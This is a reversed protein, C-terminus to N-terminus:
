KKINKQPPFQTLIQTVFEKIREEKKDRDLVLVGAGMGQWVLDKKSSDILDIYLTGETSTSVSTYNGGWYPYAWGYYGGWGWGYYGWGNYFQNVDVQQRSQTFINVLLDPNESKTFGKKAFEEDIARLIRKKDLDSIEAKDIGDKFYGYTKYRSFDAADDYDSTVRITDCSTALALVFLLSLLKITKM